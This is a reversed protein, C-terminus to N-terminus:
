TMAANISAPLCANVVAQLVWDTLITVYIIIDSMAGILANDHGTWTFVGSVSNFWGGNLVHLSEIPSGSAFGGIIAGRSILSEHLLAVVVM